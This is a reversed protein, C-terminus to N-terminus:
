YIIMVIKSQFVILWDIPQILRARMENIKVMITNKINITGSTIRKTITQITQERALHDFM